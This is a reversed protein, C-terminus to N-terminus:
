DMWGKPRGYVIAPRLFDKAPLDNYIKMMHIICDKILSHSISNSICKSSHIYMLAEDLNCIGRMGWLIHMAKAVQEYDDGYVDIRPKLREKFKEFEPIYRINIYEGKEEEM